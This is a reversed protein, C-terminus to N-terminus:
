SGSARVNTYACGEREQLLEHSFRFLHKLMHNEVVTQLRAYQTCHRVHFVPAGVDARLGLPAIKAFDLRAATAPGRFGLLACSMRRVWERKVQRTQTPPHPANAYELM